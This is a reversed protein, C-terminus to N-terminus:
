ATICWVWFASCDEAFVDVSVEVVYMLASKLLLYQDPDGRQSWDM